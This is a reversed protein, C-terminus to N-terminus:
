SNNAMSTISSPLSGSPSQMAGMTQKAQEVHEKFTAVREAVHQKAADRAMNAAERAREAMEQPSMVQPSRAVRHLKSLLGSTEGDGAANVGHCAVVLATAALLAVGLHM